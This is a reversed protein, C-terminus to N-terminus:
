WAPSTRGGGEQARAALRSGETLLAGSGDAPASPLRGDGDTADVAHLGGRDTEVAHGLAVAGDGGDLVEGELGAGARDGAEQAGVAGALARRQAHQEAECGRGGARGGDEAPAVVLEVVGGGGDPGAPRSCTEGMASPACDDACRRPPRPRARGLADALREVLDSEGVGRLAADAAEREAHALAESQGARQEASRAIRSSSSGALPRSGSPM